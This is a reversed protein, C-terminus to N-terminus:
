VRQSESFGITFDQMPGPLQGSVAPHFAFETGAL